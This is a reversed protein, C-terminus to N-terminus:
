KQDYNKVINQFDTTKKMRFTNLRRESLGVTTKRSIQAKILNIRCVAVPILSKSQCFLKLFLNSFIELKIPFKSRNSSDIMIELM